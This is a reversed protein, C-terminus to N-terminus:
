QLIKLPQIFRQTFLTYLEFESLCNVTVMNVPTVIIFRVSCSCLCFPFFASNHCIYVRFVFQFVPKEQFYGVLQLSVLVWNDRTNLFAEFRKNYLHFHSMTKIFHITSSSMQSRSSYKKKFLKNIVGGLGEGVSM